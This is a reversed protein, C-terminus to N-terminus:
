EYVMSRDLKHNFNCLFMIYLMNWTVVASASLDQVCVCVCLCSRQCGPPPLPQTPCAPRPAAAPVVRVGECVAVPCSTSHALFVLLDVDCEPADDM